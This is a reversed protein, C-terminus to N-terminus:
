EMLGSFTPWFLVMSTGFLFLARYVVGKKNRHTNQPIEGWCFFGLANHQPLEGLKIHEWTGM